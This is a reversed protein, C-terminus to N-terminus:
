LTCKSSQFYDREICILMRQREDEGGSGSWSVVAEMSIRKKARIGSNETEGELKLRKGIYSCVDDRGKGGGESPPYPPLRVRWATDTTRIM